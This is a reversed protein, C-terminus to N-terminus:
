APGGSTQLLIHWLFEQLSAAQRQNAREEQASFIQEYARFFIQKGVQRYFSGTKMCYAKCFDVYKNIVEMM